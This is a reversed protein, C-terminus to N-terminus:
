VVAEAKDFDPADASTFRLTRGDADFQLHFAFGNFIRKTSM